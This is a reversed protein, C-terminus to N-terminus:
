NISWDVLIGFERLLKFHGSGIFPFPPRLASFPSPHNSKLTLITPLDPILHCKSQAHAGWLLFAIKNGSQSANNAIEKIVLDTLTEWGLKAHSLPKGKSVSLTTNLLFVGQQQWGDLCGTNLTANETRSIEKFINRM